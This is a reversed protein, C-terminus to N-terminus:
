PNRKTTLQARTYLHYTLYLIGCYLLAFFVYLGVIIVDPNLGDLKDIFEMFARSNAFKSTVFIIIILGLVNNLVFHLLVTLPINHKYKWANVLSFTRLFCYTMLCLLPMIYYGHFKLETWNFFEGSFCIATISRTQSSLGLFKPFDLRFFSHLLDACIVGAFWVIQTGIAIVLFHWVFKELNTAPLTLENIRGQKTVLNHFMYGSAIICYACGVFSILGAYFETNYKVERSVDFNGSLIAYLDVLVIPFCCLAVVLLSSRLYFKSNITLDWRAVNIFRHFNFQKM